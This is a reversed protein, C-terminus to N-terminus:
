VGRFQGSFRNKRTNNPLRVRIRAFQIRVRGLVHPFPPSVPMFFTIAVRRATDIKVVAVFGDHADTGGVGPLVNAIPCGPKQTPLIATVATLRIAHAIITLRWLWLSSFAFSTNQAEMTGIPHKSTGCQVLSPQALLGPM